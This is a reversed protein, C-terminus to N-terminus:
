RIVEKVVFPLLLLLNHVEVLLSPVFYGLMPKGHAVSPQLKPFWRPVQRVYALYRRGYREVLHSEEYHVVLSYVVACCLVQVPVFWFLEALMCAAALMATNALYIPNRVYAYPGTVTVTKQVGLRYHLHMQAWVRLALGAAFLVGGTGFVLSHDETEGRACLTVFIMGPVM